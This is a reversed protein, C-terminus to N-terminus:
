THMPVLRRPHPCTLPVSDQELGWNWTELMSLGLGSGRSGIQLMEELAHIGAVLCHEASLWLHTACLLHVLHPPSAGLAENAQGRFSPRMLGVESLSLELFCVPLNPPASTTGDIPLAITLNFGALVQAEVARSGGQCM